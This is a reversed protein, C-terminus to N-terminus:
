KVMSKTFELQKSKIDKLAQKKVQETIILKEMISKLGESEDTASIAVQLAEINEKIAGLDV